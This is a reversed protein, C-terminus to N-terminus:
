KSAFYKELIADKEEPTNANTLAEPAPADLLQISTNIL